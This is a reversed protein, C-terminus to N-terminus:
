EKIEFVMDINVQGSFLANFAEQDWGELWVRVTMKAGNIFSADLGSAVTLDGLGSTSLLKVPANVNLVTDGRSQISPLITDLVGSNAAVTNYYKAAFNDEAFDNAITGFGVTNNFTVTNGNVSDPNGAEKEFINSTLSDVSATLKDWEREQFSVRIASALEAEMINGQTVQRSGAQVAKEANWQTATDTEISLGVLYVDTAVSGTLFYLDFEVYGSSSASDALANGIEYKIKYFTIGDESTLDTFSGGKVTIDNLEVSNFWTSAAGTKSIYFGGTAAQASGTLNNAETRTNMSFWAFVGTGLAVVTLVLTLVSTIIKKSFNRM